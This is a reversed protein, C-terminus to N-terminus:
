LRQLFINYRATCIAYIRSGIASKSGSLIVLNIREEGPLQILQPSMIIGRTISFFPADIEQPYSRNTFTHKCRLRIYKRVWASLIDNYIYVCHIPLLHQSWLRVGWCLLKCSLYGRSSSFSSPRGTSIRYMNYRTVHDRPKESEDEM